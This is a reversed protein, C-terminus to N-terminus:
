KELVKKLSELIANWSETAHQLREENEFNSTGAYVKVGQNNPLEEVKMTVIGYNEPLDELGSFSSLYTYQLLKEEELKLITGKDVYKTGEYEGQFIIPSGVKWDTVTETGFLYEKIVVPNIIADWVKALPANVIISTEIKLNPNMKKQYLTLYIAKALSVNLPTNQVHKRKREFLELHSELNSKLLM